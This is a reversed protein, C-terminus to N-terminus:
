EISEVSTTLAAQGGIEGRYANWLRVADKLAQKSHDVATVQLTIPNSGPRNAFWDLVALSATGPGSGVDLVSLTNQNAWDNPLESLLMQIKAFNVPLFYAAYGASLRLDDLYRDGLAARERTSLRTISDILKNTAGRGTQAYHAEFLDRASPSLRYPAPQNFAEM